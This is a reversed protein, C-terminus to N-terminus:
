VIDIAITFDDNFSGSQNVDGNGVITWHGEAADPDLTTIRNGTVNDVLDFTDITDLEVIHRLIAVADDAQIAGNNNVDGSHWNVSGDALSDLEVIHRLVAVADDAHISTSFASADALKVADFAISQDFSIAGGEVLTSVGTDVGNSFYDLTVNNLYNDADAHIIANISSLEMDVTYDRPTINGTDTVVVMENLSLSVLDLNTDANVYFTGIMKEAQINGNFALNNDPDTDVIAGSSAIAVAGTESNFTIGSNAINSPNFGINVDSAFMGHGFNLAGIEAPNWDMDFQYGRVESAGIGFADLEATNIWVEFKLLKTSDGGTYDAGYEDTSIQAKTISGADRIQILQATPAPENVTATFTQTAIAGSPDEATIV